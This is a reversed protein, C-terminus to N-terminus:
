RLPAACMRQPRGHLARAFRSAVCLIIVSVASVAYQFGTLAAPYPFHLVAFKNIISLLSRALPRRARRAYRPLTLTVTNARRIRTNAPAACRSTICYGLALFVTATDYGCALRELGM